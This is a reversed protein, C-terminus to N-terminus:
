AVTQVTPELVATACCCPCCCVYITLGNAALQEGSLNGGTNLRTTLDTLMAVKEEVPFADGGFVKEVSQIDTMTLELGATRANIEIARTTPHAPTVAQWAAAQADAAGLISVMQGKTLTRARKTLEGVKDAVGYVEAVQEITADDPLAENVAM